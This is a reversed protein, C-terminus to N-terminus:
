APTSAGGEILGWNHLGLREILMQRYCDDDAMGALTLMEQELHKYAALLTMLADQDIRLGLAARRLLDAKAKVLEWRAQAFEDVLNLLLTERPEYEFSSKGPDIKIAEFRVVQQFLRTNWAMQSLYSKNILIQNRRLTRRLYPKSRYEEDLLEDYRSIEDSAVCYLEPLVQGLARPRPYKIKLYAGVVPAALIFTAPLSVELLPITM